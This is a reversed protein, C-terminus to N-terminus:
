GVILADKEVKRQEKFKGGQKDIGARRGFRLKKYSGVKVKIKSKSSKNAMRKQGAKLKWPIMYKINVKLM